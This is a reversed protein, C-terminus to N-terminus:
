AIELKNTRYYMFVVFCLIVGRIGDILFISPDGTRSFILPIIAILSVAYTAAIYFGAEKGKFFWYAGLMQIVMHLYMVSGFYIAQTFLRTETLISYSTFYSVTAFLGTMLGSILLVVSVPIRSKFINM